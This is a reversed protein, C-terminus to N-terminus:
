EPSAPALSIANRVEHFRRRLRDAAAQIQPQVNNIIDPIESVLPHRFPLTQAIGYASTGDHAFIASNAGRQFLLRVIDLHRSRGAREAFLGDAIKYIAHLSSVGEENVGNVDAGNAILFDVVTSSAYQCALHLPTSGGPAGCQAIMNINEFIGSERLEELFPICSNHMVAAHLPTFGGHSPIHIDAGAQILQGAVAFDGMSVADLLPTRGREDLVDLTPSHAILEALADHRALLVAQHLASTGRHIEQPSVGSALLERVLEINNQEVAAVIDSGVDASKVVFVTTLLFFVLQLM